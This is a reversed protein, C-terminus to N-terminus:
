RRFLNISQLDHINCMQIPQRWDLGLYICSSLVSILLLVLWRATQAKVFADVDAVDQDFLYLGGGREEEEREFWLKMVLGPESADREAISKRTEFRAQGWPGGPEHFDFLVAEYRRNTINSTFCRSRSCLRRTLRVAIM